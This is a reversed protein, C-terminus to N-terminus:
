VILKLVILRLESANWCTALTKEVFVYIEVIGDNSFLLPVLVFLGQFDPNSLKLHHQSLDILLVLKISVFAVCLIIIWILYHFYFRFWSELPVTIKFQEKLELVLM